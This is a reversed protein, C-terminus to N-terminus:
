SDGPEFAHLLGQIGAVAAFQIWGQRGLEWPWAAFYLSFVFLSSYVGFCWSCSTVEYIKNYFFWWRSNLLREDSTLWTHFKTRANDFITDFLALRTIRFSAFALIILTLLTM